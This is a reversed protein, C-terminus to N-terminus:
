KLGFLEPFTQAAWSYGVFSVIDLIWHAIILPRTRGFRQYFYGFVLGMAVNGIFGGFGQYLHYSGRLVASGLIIQWPKWALDRLRAFLYGVVIIEELLAAKLAALILVPVTWWYTDLATPVVTTNIGLARSGLYLALGPIGIAASLAFALGVDKALGRQGLGLRSLHPKTASWLLYCVLAVPVLGFGISLLQYILDFIPRESMSENITASQDSLAEERTLRNVISVISYVASAGLSLGLVILIESWLRGNTLPPTSTASKAAPAAAEAASNTTM